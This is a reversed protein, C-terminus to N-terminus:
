KIVLELNATDYGSASAIKLRLKGGFKADDFTYHVLTKEGKALEDGSFDSANQRYGDKAAYSPMYSLDVDRKASFEVVMYMSGSSGRYASALRATAGLASDKSERSWLVDKVPGQKGVWGTIKGQEFTFDRWVYTTKPEDEYKIKVTGTAPDGKIGPAEEDDRTYGAIREAKETLTQHAVYRAAPSEPKVLEGAEEYDNKHVLKTFKVATDFDSSTSPAPTEDAPTSVTVEGQPQAADNAGGGSCGAMALTAGLIAAAVRGYNHSM